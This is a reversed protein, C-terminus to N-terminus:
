LPKIKFARRWKRGLVTTTETGVWTSDHRSIAPLPPKNSVASEFRWGDPLMLLRHRPGPRTPDHDEYGADGELLAVLHDGQPAMHTEFRRPPSGRARAM